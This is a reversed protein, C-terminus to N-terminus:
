GKKELAEKKLEEEIEMKRKQEAEIMEKERKLRQRKEAMYASRMRNSQLVSFYDKTTVVIVGSTIDGYQAPIGGTIIAINEVALASVGTINPSKIGDVIYATADGRGGRIHLEGDSDVNAESSINVVSGIIDGRDVAMHLFDEATIEKIDMFTQDIIPKAYAVIEIADFANLSVTADVYTTRESSVQINTIKKTQSEASSIILDYGGANLPKYTYMGKEDTITGGIFVGGQLIKITGGILPEKDSTLIQGKLAGMSNQSFLQMSSIILLSAYVMQKLNKM